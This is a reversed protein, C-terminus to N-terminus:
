GVPQGFQPDFPARDPQCVTGRPPVTLNVLYATMASLVCASPDAGSTHGYGDLTLLRARALQRSMAVSGSYPTQPDDTNGIVLVPDATRRNWPGIYRDAARAPWSACAVTEWLRFPGMPGSRKYALRDDLSFGAPGPNPSDSCLIAFIPGLSLQASPANSAGGETGTTLVGQLLTALAAWNAPSALASGVESVVEAYAVKAGKPQLRLRQLLAAFKTETAAASGASFACHATDTRGCLDLFAKLTKASSQDSGQRLFTTLFAGGNAQLQRNVNATPNLNGDLVMARVRNPFLNAYTAGLFTGYSIGLYSLRRDGVARRLLDLDRATDTTSVHTLLSRNRKACLDDFTRYHDLWSRMEARGVPFSAIAQMGGLFGQEDAVTSFCKVATSSGSGRPDWSVIDFRALLTAPVGQLASPLDLTGPTGPGGPNIFLSGIRHAPDDARHRILALDIKAGGPNRYDLPVPATACEFGQQASSACPHWTLRPVVPGSASSASAAGAPLVLSAVLAALAMAVRVRMPGRRTKMMTSQVSVEDISRSLHEFPFALSGRLTWNGSGGSSCLPM